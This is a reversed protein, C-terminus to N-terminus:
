KAQIVLRKLNNSNNCTILTVLKNNGVDQSICSLDNANVEYKNEIHYEHKQGALDYIEILDGNNLEDLRSFFRNDIYNHGAICLNGIENPLPGAFRCLSIKLLKDNIISLIPYSLNIKDIKIMGIVFPIETSFNYNIQNTDYENNNSYLTTLKYSNLLEKSIKEQQNNQYLRWFLFFLFITAIICSIFFQLQYRRKIKKNKIFRKFKNQRPNLSEQIIQNM